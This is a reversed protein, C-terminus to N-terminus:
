NLIIEPLGHYFFYRQGSMLANHFAIRVQPGEIRRTEGLLRDCIEAQLGSARGRPEILERSTSLTDCLEEGFTHPDIFLM